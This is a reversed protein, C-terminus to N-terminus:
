PSGMNVGAQLLSLLVRLVHSAQAAQDVPLQVALERDLAKLDTGAAVADVTARAHAADLGLIQLREFALETVLEADATPGGPGPAAPAETV